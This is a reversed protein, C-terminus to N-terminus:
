VKETRKNSSYYPRNYGIKLRSEHCFISTNSRKGSSRVSPRELNIYRSIYRSDSKGDLTKAAQTPNDFIGFLSKKDLLFAFLKGKALSYLDVGTIPLASDITTYSPADELLPKSPDILYVDMDLVPSYITFNKLNIYRDLTTKPIGLSLAARNKSSFKMFNKTDHGVRVEITKSGDNMLYDSQVWKSFPFVVTYTSNLKPM